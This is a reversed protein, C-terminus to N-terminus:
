SPSLQIVCPEYVWKTDLCQVMHRRGQQLTKNYALKVLECQRPTGEYVYDFFHGLTIPPHQINM